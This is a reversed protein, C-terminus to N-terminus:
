KFYWLCDQSVHNLLSEQLISAYNNVCHFPCGELDHETNQIVWLIVAHKNLQHKAFVLSFTFSVPPCFQFELQKCFFLFIGLTPLFEAPNHNKETSFPQYKLLCNAKLFPGPAWLSDRSLAYSVSATSNYFVSTFMTCSADCFHWRVLNNQKKETRPLLSSQHSSQRQLNLFFAQFLVTHPVPVVSLM